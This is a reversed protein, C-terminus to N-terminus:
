FIQRSRHGSPHQINKNIRSNLSTCPHNGNPVVGGCTISESATFAHLADKWSQPFSNLPRESTISIVILESLTKQAGDDVSKVLIFLYLHWTFM